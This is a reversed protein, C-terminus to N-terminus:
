CWEVIKRECVFQGKPGLSNDPLLALYVPTDSGEEPSLNGKFSSMETRVYGPCCANIIVDSEPNRDYKKQLAFTAMTLGLKSIAYASKPFGLEECNGIRSAEIFMNIFDNVDDISNIATKSCKMRLDRNTIIHYLGARSSLIVIRAHIKIVQDLRMCLRLTGFYNAKLTDDVQKVFPTPDKVKYAMSANHIIIDFRINKLQFFAVLQDISDYKSLDLELGTVNRTKFERNISHAADEARDKNRATLYITGKFQKILRRVIANGIGRNGGTVLANRGDNMASM